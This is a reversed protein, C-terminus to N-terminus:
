EAPKFHTFIWILRDAVEAPIQETHLQEGLTEGVQSPTWGLPKAKNMLASLDQQSMYPEGAKKAADAVKAWAKDWKEGGATAIMPVVRQEDKPAVEPSFEDGDRPEYVPILFTNVLAYKLAFSLLKNTAKDSTDMAEAAQITEVSSGDAAYFTTMVRASVSTMGGGSSSRRDERLPDALVKQAVVIGHKALVPQCAAVVEDVGRFKYGQGRNDRTKGVHGVEAMVAAIKAYIEPM